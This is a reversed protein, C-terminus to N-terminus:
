NLFAQGKTVKRIKQDEEPTIKSGRTLFMLGHGYSEMTPVFKLWNEDTMQSNMLQLQSMNPMKTLAGLGSGNIATGDLVLCSMDRMKSLHVLGADTVATNGLDLFTLKTLGSLYALGADGVTTGHLGLHVLSTLGSFAKVGADGINGCRYLDIRELRELRSFHALDADVINSGDLTVSKLKTLSAIKSMEEGSIQAATITLEELEKLQAISQWIASTLRCQYLRIRRISDIEAIQVLCENDIEGPDQGRATARTGAQVAAIVENAVLTKSLDKLKKLGEAPGATVRLGYEIKGPQSVLDIESLSVREGFIQNLQSQFARARVLYDAQPNSVPDLHSPPWPVRVQLSKPSAAEQSLTDRSLTYLSSVPRAAPEVAMATLGSGCLVLVICFARNM